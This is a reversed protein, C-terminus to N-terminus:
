RKIFIEKLTNIGCHRSRSCGRSLRCLLCGAPCFRAAHVRRALFRTETEHHNGGTQLKFPIGAAGFAFVAASAAARNGRPKLLRRPAHFANHYLVAVPQWLRVGKPGKAKRGGSERPKGKVYFISQEISLKMRAHLCPATLQKRGRMVCFAWAFRAKQLPPHPIM